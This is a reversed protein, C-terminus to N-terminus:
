SQLLTWVVWATYGFGLSLILWGLWKIRVLKLWLYVGTISFILLALSALDMMVLYVDFWTGGGYGHVRHLVSFMEYYSHPRTQHVLKNQHVDFSLMHFTQPTVIEVELGGSETRNIWEIKGTLSLHQKLWKALDHDTDYSPPVVETTTDTTQRESHDFWNYRNLLFGTIFFLLLFIGTIAAAYFHVARLIRFTNIKQAM